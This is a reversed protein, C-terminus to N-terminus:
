CSAQDSPPSRQTAWVPMPPWPRALWKRRDDPLPQAPWRRQTTTVNVRPLCPRPAAMEDSLDAVESEWLALDEDQQLRIWEAEVTAAAEDRLSSVWLTNTAM